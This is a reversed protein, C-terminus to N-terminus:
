LKGLPVSSQVQMPGVSHAFGARQLLSQEILRYIYPRNFTEYILVAYVLAEEAATQTKSRIADGFARELSRFRRAIYDKRRRYAGAHTFPINNLVTYIYIIVLMWLESTVNAADPLLTARKSLVGRYMFYALLITVTATLLQRPWSVLRARGVVALYSWRILFYDFVVIYFNTVWLDLGVGYLAAASLILFVLPTAVRFVFNFAPAEDVKEFLSIVHYGSTISHRGLWNALFFLLLALLAHVIVLPAGM